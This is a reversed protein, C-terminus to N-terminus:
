DRIVAERLEGFASLIKASAKTGANGKKLRCHEGVGISSLLILQYIGELSFEFTVEETM